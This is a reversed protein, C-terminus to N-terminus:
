FDCDFDNMLGGAAINPRSYVSIDNMSAYLIEVQKVIEMKEIMSIHPYELQQLCHLQYPFRIQMDMQIMEEKAKIDPHMDAPFYREDYGSLTRLDQINSVDQPITHKMISEISISQKSSMLEFWKM